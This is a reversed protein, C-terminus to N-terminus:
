GNAKGTTNGIRDGALFARVSSETYGTARKGGIGGYVRRILGRNAWKTVTKPSVNGIEAVQERTVIRDIPTQDVLHIATRGNLIDVVAVQAAHIMEKTVCPDNGALNAIAGKILETTQAFM